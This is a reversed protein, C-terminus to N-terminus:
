TPLARKRDKQSRKKRKKELLTNLAKTDKISDFKDKLYLKNKESAKLHYPVKGDKAAEKEKKKFDTLVRQRRDREKAAQERSQMSGLTKELRAKENVDKEKAITQKLIRMEDKRYDELFGYAKRAHSTSNPNKSTDPDFRPDRRETKVVEM